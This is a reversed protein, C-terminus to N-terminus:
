NVIKFFVYLFCICFKWIIIEISKVIYYYKGDVYWRKDFFCLVMEILLDRCIKILFIFKIMGMKYKFLYFVINKGLFNKVSRFNVYFVGIVLSVGM